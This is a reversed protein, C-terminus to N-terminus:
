ERRHDVVYGYIQLNEGHADIEITAYREHNASVLRITQGSMEFRKLYLGDDRRVLAIHGNAKRPDRTVARIATAQASLRKLVESGVTGTAGTMAVCVCAATGVEGGGFGRAGFGILGGFGGRGGMSQFFTLCCTASAAVEPASRRAKSYKLANM